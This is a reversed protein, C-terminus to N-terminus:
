FVKIALTQVAAIVDLGEGLVRNDPLSLDYEWIAQANEVAALKMVHEMFAM